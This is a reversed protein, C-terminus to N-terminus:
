VIIIVCMEVVNSSIFPRWIYLQHAFVFTITALSPFLLMLIITFSLINSNALAYIDPVRLSCGRNCCKQKTQKKMEKATSVSRWPSFSVWKLYKILYTQLINQQRCIPIASLNFISQAVRTSPQFFTKTCQFEFVSFVNQLIFKFSFKYYLYILGKSPM